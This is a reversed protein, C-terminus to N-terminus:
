ADRIASSEIIAIVTPMPPVGLQTTPSETKPPTGDM